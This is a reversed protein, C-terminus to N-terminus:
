GNRLFKINNLNLFFIKLLVFIISRIYKQFGYKKQIAAKEIKYEEKDYIGAKFDERLVNM